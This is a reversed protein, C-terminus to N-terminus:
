LSQAQVYDSLWEDTSQLDPSVPRGTYGYDRIVTNGYKEQGTTPMPQFGRLQQSETTEKDPFRTPINDPAQRSRTPANDPHNPTALVQRQNMSVDLPRLTAADLREGNQRAATYILNGLSGMYDHFDSLRHCPLGTSEWFAVFASQKGVTFRGKPLPDGAKGNKTTRSRRTNANFIAYLVQGTVLCRFQLTVGGARCTGYNGVSHGAYELPTVNAMRAVDAILQQRRQELWDSPIPCGSAAAIMLRGQTMAVVDGRALLQALLSNRAAM